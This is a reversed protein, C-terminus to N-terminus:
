EMTKRRSRLTWRPGTGPNSLMSLKLVLVDQGLGVFSVRFLLQACGFRTAVNAGVMVYGSLCRVPFLQDSIGTSVFKDM